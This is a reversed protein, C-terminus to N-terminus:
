AIDELNDLAVKLLDQNTTTISPVDVKRMEFPINDIIVSPKYEERYNVEFKSNYYHISPAALLVDYIMPLMKKCIFRGVNDYKSLYFEPTLRLIPKEFFWKDGSLDLTQLADKKGLKWTAMMLPKFDKDFLASKTAYYAKKENGEKGELLVLKSNKYDESLSVKICRDFSKYGSSFAESKISVAIEDPSDDIGHNEVLDMFTNIVFVPVEVTNGKIPITMYLTDKEEEAQYNGIGRHYYCNHLQDNYFVRKM